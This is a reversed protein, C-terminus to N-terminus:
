YAGKAKIVVPFTQMLINLDLWFSWNNIYWIDWRLLRSFSIDSRGRIQWLGTIGPKVELRKLQKFDEKEIQDIPLPRPGVLSMDGRLVNILQPLEDLSYKRLILGNRTIRPDKKIKFIPGDVENREKLQDKIRDADFCMSRFKYMNFIRGGRGYRKSVYMIPGPSDMKIMVAIMIIFPLLLVLGLLTMIFDFIRKGVQKRFPTEESYELIPIFGINYKAFEGSVLDFGQPVVRVAINLVRAQELLRLFVESDHHVTIFVKNVFEKRTIEKFDPIKGLIKIDPHEECETKFDDLFGVVRIGLGPKKRIEEVLAGGVRGAGIILANLNNYGRSVIYEVFLRKCVRWISLFIVILGSGILLISRPFDPIKLGYLVVIVILTAISVSKIISGIEFGELVERKTQYLSKSKLFLITTVTWFVFIFQYPNERAFYISSFNISFPLTSQRLTAALFIALHIFLIDIFIYLFKILTTQFRTRM